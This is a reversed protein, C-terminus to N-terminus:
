MLDIVAAALKAPIKHDANKSCYVDECGNSKSTIFEVKGNRHIRHTDFGDDIRKHVLEAKCVPCEFKM